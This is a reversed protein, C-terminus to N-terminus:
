MALKERMDKRVPQEDLTPDSRLIARQLQQLRASPEVGLESVLTDRLRKFAELARWQQGSRYLAVMFQACMNEHMPYTATLMALESLLMYHRGLRM